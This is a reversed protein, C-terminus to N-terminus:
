LAQVEAEVDRAAARGEVRVADHMEGACVSELILHLLAEQARIEGLALEHAVAVREDSQSDLYPEVLVLDALGQRASAVGVLDAVVLAGGAPKADARHRREDDVARDARRTRM